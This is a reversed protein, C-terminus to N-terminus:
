FICNGMKVHKRNIILFSIFMDEGTSSTNKPNISHQTATLYNLFKMLYIFVMSLQYIKSPIHKYIFGIYATIAQADSETNLASILGNAVCEM